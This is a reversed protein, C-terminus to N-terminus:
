GPLHNSSRANCHGYSVYSLWTAGADLARLQRRADSSAGGFTKGSRLSDYFFQSFRSASRDSVRWRPAVLAACRAQQIWTAPWGTMKGLIQHQRAAHHANMFVLPRHNEMPGLGYLHTQELAALDSLALPVVVDGPDESSGRIAFHWLDGRGSALLDLIADPSREELCVEEFREATSWEDLYSRDATGGDDSRSDLCVWAALDLRRAVPLLPGQATLWRTLEFRAALFDMQWDAAPDFPKVLEWPIWPEDSVIHL